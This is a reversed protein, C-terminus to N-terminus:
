DARLKAARDLVERSLSDATQRDRLGQLATGGQLGHLGTRQEVCRRVGTAARRPLQRRPELRMRPPLRGDFAVFGWGKSAKANQGGRSFEQPQRPKFRDHRKLMQTLIQTAEAEARKRDAAALTKEMEQLAAADFGARSSANTDNPYVAEWYGGAVRAYVYQQM